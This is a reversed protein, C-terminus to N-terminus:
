SRNCVKCAIWGNSHYAGVVRLNHGKSCTMWVDITKKIAEKRRVSMLPYITMMWEIANKGGFRIRYMQKVGLLNRKNKPVQTACKTKTIDKIKEIVDKDTTDISIYPTRGQYFFSGEGELIGAIYGINSQLM